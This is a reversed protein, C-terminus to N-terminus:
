LGRGSRGRWSLGFGLLSMITLVLASPEPVASVLSFSHVSGEALGSIFVGKIINLSVPFLSTPAGLAQDNFFFQVTDDQGRADIVMTVRGSNTFDLGALAGEGFNHEVRGSGALIFSSVDVDADESSLFLSPGVGTNATDSLISWAFGMGMWNTGQGDAVDVEIELTHIAGDTLTVPYNARSNEGPQAL